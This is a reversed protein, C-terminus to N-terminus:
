HAWAIVPWGGAPPDGAPTLVVASVPVDAGTATRSHYLIRLTTVFPLDYDDFRESRILDGPKGAPLPKPTDYFKTLPFPPRVKPRWVPTNQAAAAISFVICLAHALLPRLSM